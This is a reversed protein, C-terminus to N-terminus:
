EPEHRIVPYEKDRETIQAAIATPLVEFNGEHMVIALQGKELKKSIEDKIWIKKIKTGMKFYYPDNCNKLELRNEEILQKIQARAEQKLKEANAKLNKERNAKEQALQAQQTENIKPATKKGKNKKRSVHKQHKVKKAKKEDVLGAKLLQDQLSMGM